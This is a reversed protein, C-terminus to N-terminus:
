KDELRDNCNKDNNGETIFTKMVYIAADLCKACLQGELEVWGVDFGDYRALRFEGNDNAIKGCKDCKYQKAM